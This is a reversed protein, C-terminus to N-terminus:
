HRIALRCGHRVHMCRCGTIFIDIHRAIIEPLDTDHLLIAFAQYLVLAGNDVEFSVDLFVAAIVESLGELIKVFILVTFLALNIRAIRRFCHHM